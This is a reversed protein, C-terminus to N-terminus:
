DLTGAPLSKDQNHVGIYMFMTLIQRSKNQYCLITNTRASVNNFQLSALCRRVKIYYTNRHGVLHTHIGIIINDVIM